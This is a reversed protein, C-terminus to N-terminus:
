TKIEYHPYDQFTAWTGGWIIRHSIKGSKYLEYATKLVFNGFDVFRKIDKWDIPYPAVDAAM